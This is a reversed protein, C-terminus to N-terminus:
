IEIKPVARFGKSQAFHPANQEFRPRVILRPTGHTFFESGLTEESHGNGTKRQKAGAQDADCKGSRYKGEVKGRGSADGILKISRDGCSAAPVTAATATLQNISPALWNGNRRNM